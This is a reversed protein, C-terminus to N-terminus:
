HRKSTLRHAQRKKYQQHWLFLGSLALALLALGALDIIVIGLKGLLRGSHLDLLFREVSIINGRYNQTLLANLSYPAQVPTSWLINDPSEMSGHFHLLQKDAQYLKDNSQLILRSQPDMGIRNIPIPLGTTSSLQEILEGKVSYLLLAQEMAIILLDDSRTAGVLMGQQAHIPQADFFLRDEIQNIYVSGAAFSRITAPPAVGYWDLLFRNGIFRSGLQLTDTHNLLLGTISLMVAFLAAVVGLHRHWIYLSRLRLFPKRQRHHSM